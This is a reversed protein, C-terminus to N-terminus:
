SHAEEVTGGKEETPLLDLLRQLEHTSLHGLGEDQGAEEAEPEARAPPLLQCAARILAAVDTPKLRADFRLEGSEADRVLLTRLGAMAIRELQAAHETRRLYAAEPARRSRERAEALEAEDHATARVRWRHRSSWRKVLSLSKGLEAATQRLTRDPGTELFSVFARYATASEEPQRDWMVQGARAETPRPENESHATM